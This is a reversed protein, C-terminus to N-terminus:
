VRKATSSGRNCFLTVEHEEKKGKSACNEEVPSAQCPNGSLVSFYHKLSM